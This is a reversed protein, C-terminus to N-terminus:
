VSGSGGKWHNVRPCSRLDDVDVPLATAISQNAAIGILISAAGDLHSAARGFPDAPPHPSFLQEILLPGDCIM